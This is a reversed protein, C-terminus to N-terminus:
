ATEFTIDFYLENGHYVTCVANFTRNKDMFFEVKQRVKIKELNRYCSKEIKEIFQTKVIKPCNQFKSM